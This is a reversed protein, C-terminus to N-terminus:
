INTSEDTNHRKPKGGHSQRVTSTREARKQYRRLSLLGMCVYWAYFLSLFIGTLGGKIGNHNFLSYELARKTHRAWNRWDFREGNAYRAKGEHKIYRWHKQALQRYSDVWYHRVAYHPELTACTHGKLLQRGRHVDPTLRNRKKHIVVQKPRLGGWTTTHLPKGKVFIQCPLAIAGLQPDNEIVRRLENEANAPFVEDPDLFIVWDHKAYDLSQRRIQEVIPVIPHHIIRAGCERAIEVSRDDSGLDIVILQDCFALSTLCQRLRRDENYTVVIGTFPVPRDTEPRNSRQHADKQMVKTAPYM